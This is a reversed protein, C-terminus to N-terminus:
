FPPGPTLASMKDRFHAALGPINTKDAADILRNNGTQGWWSAATTEIISMSMLIDAKTNWVMMEVPWLSLQEWPKMYKIVLFIFLHQVALYSCNGELVSLCYSDKFQGQQPALLFDLDQTILTSPLRPLEPGLSCSWTHLNSCCSQRLSSPHPLAALSLFPHLHSLLSSSPCCPRREPLKMFSLQRRGLVGSRVTEM